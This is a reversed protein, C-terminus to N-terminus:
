PHILKLNDIRVEGNDKTFKGTQDIPLLATVLYSYNTYDTNIFESFNVYTKSWEQKPNYTVTAINKPGVSNKNIGFLEVLLPVDSKYDMELFIRNKQPLKDFPQQTSVSMVPHDKNVRLLGCRVGYKVDSSTIQFNLSDDTDVNNNFSITNSEFDELLRFKLTKDYMITPTVTDTKAPILKKQVVFPLFHFYESPTTNDGNNRIGAFITIKTDGEKLIPVDAPLTFVGLLDSGEFVWADVVRATNAGEKIYDTEVVFPKIHLYAPIQEKQDCGWGVLLLLTYFLIKKM